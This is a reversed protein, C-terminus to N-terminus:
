GRAQELIFEVSDANATSAVRLPFDERVPFSLAGGAAITTYDAGIAAGDSGTHAVKISGSGAARITIQRAWSPVSVVDMNGASAQTTKRVFAIPANYSTLSIAM